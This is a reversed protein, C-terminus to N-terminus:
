PHVGEEISARAAIEKGDAGAAVVLRADYRPTADGAILVHVTAVRVSGAPLDARTSYAALILRDDLLARPDYYPPEAFAPVAVNGEIGVITVDAGRAKIEIQYAALPAGGTDIVVNVAAFRAAPATTPHPTAPATTTDPASANTPPSPADPMADPTTTAAREPTATPTAGHRTAPGAGLLAAMAVVVAFAIVICRGRM